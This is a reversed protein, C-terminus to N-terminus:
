GGTLLRFFWFIIAQLNKRKIGRYRDNERLRPEMSQPYMQSKQQDQKERPKSISFEIFFPLSGLRM